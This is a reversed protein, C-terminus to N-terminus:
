VTWKKCGSTTWWKTQRAGIRLKRCWVLLEPGSGLFEDVAFILDLVKPSKQLLKTIFDKSEASRSKWVEDDFDFDAQIVASQTEHLADRRFPSTKSLLVFTCCGISWMDAAPTLTLPQCLERIVLWSHSFLNTKASMLLYIYHFGLWLILSFKSLLATNPQARSKVFTVRRKTSSSPCELIAFAFQTKVMLFFIKQNSIQQIRNLM